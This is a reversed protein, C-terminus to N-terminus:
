FQNFYRRASDAPRYTVWYTKADPDFDRKLSDRGILKFFLGTPTIVLYYFLLMVIFSIALGVPATVVQLAIYIPKVARASLLSIVYILLGAACIYLAWVSHLGKFWYLFLALANLVALATRGFSRLDEKTPKWNMSVLLM